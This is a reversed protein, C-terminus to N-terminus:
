KVKTIVYDKGDQVFEFEVKAGDGLKDLLAKDKVKFGMNMAPWNMTKVPEHAVTVVGKKADVKKVTGMAKHATTAGAAPKGAKDMAGMAEMKQQAMSAVPMMLAFIVSPIAIRNM